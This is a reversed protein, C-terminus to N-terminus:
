LNVVRSGALTQPVTLTVETTAGSATRVSLTAEAGEALGSGSFAPVDFQLVARDSDDDITPRARSLSGNEDNVSEVGFTERGAREGYTLRSVGSSDVWEIVVASLDIESAGPARRVVIEVTQVAENQIDTGVTSTAQLRNQVQGNQQDPTTTESSERRDGDYLLWGEETRRLEFLWDQREPDEDEATRTLVTAAVEATDDTKERLEVDTVGIDVEEEFYSAGEESVEGVPSDPHILENAAERDGENLAAYYERVVQVQRPDPEETEDDEEDGDTTGTSPLGECGALAATVASVGTLYARRDM